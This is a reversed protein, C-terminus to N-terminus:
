SNKAIFVRGPHLHTGVEELCHVKHDPERLRDDALDQCRSTPCSTRSKLEGQRKSLVNQNQAATEVGLAGVTFSRGFSAVRQFFRYFKM